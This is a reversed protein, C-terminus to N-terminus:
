RSAQSLSDIIDSLTKILVDGLEKGILTTQKCGKVFLKPGLVPRVPLEIHDPVLSNSVRVTTRFSNLFFFQFFIMLCCFTHFFVWCAFYSSYIRFKQSLKIKAFFTLLCM